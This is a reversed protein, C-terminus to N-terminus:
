DIPANSGFCVCDATNEPTVGPWPFWVILTTTVVVLPAVEEAVLVTLAVGGEPALAVTGPELMATRALKGAAKAAPTPLWDAEVRAGLVFLAEDAGEAAAPVLTEGV